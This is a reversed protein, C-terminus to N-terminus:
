NEDLVLHFAKRRPLRFVNFGRRDLTLVEPLGLRAGLLVLTADEYDMPVDHYKAMLEAAARVEQPQAYDYIQMGSTAVFNALLNPGEMGSAVFHMAETIVAGTTALQGTFADLRASVLAHDPDRASLYAVLPGTDLLWSRVKKSEPERDATAM